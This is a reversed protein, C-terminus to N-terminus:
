YRQWPLALEKFFSRQSLEKSSLLFLSTRVFGIAYWIGCLSDLRIMQDNFITAIIFLLLDRTVTVGIRRFNLIALKLSGDYKLHIRSSTSAYRLCVWRLYARRMRSEPIVHYVRAQPAYSIPFGSKSARWTFDRDTGTCFSNDFGGLRLFLSQHIIVNGTFISDRLSRRRSLQEGLIRRSKPGLVLPSSDPLILHRPGGVIMAGSRQAVKFLKALWSPEALQDDDFFALWKGQSNEIGKNRAWGEGIEEQFVYRLSLVPNKQSIEKVVRATNDTSGNDVVLIEYSFLGETNMKVLSELANRLLRARNRTAVIVTIDAKKKNNM